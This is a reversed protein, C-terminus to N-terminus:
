KREKITYIQGRQGIVEYEQYFEKMKVNDSLSVEYNFKGNPLDTVIPLSLLSIVFLCISSIFWGALDKYVSYVVGAISLILTCLAIGLMVTNPGTASIQNLFTIGDMM